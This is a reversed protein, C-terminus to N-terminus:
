EYYILKLMEIIDAREEYSEKGLNSATWKPRRGIEKFGSHIINTFKM